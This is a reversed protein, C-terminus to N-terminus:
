PELQGTSTDAASAGNSKLAIKQTNKPSFQHTKGQVFDLRKEGGLNNYLVAIGSPPCVYDGLGASISTHCTVRKAMNVTDFYGLGDAYDPRWGKIRGATPGGLDCFWPVNVFSKTVDKDLAAGAIAQFGGQSGGSVILDKGNWEPQQKLFELSRLVRLTIGLFYSTEPRANEETNFGYKGLPLSKYYEPERGNEIGHANICLMMMGPAYYPKASTVGYGLYTGTAKLSKPAADKPKTLYGSVPRGGACDIKVDYTVFAPDKTPVETLTAKVPVEKLKAIQATWFADFDAPEPVAQTLKEPEVGAGGDFRIPQGKANLVPKGHDNVLWAQFRVFGPQELSTKVTLPEANSSVAEGTESKGDDGTRSWAIKQGALPKGDQLTEIRFEITEGPRYVPESKATAVNLTPDAAPLNWPLLGLALGLITRFPFVSRM